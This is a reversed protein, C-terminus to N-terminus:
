NMYWTFIMTASNTYIMKASATGGNGDSQNSIMWYGVGLEGAWSFNSSFFYEGGWALKFNMTAPNNSSSTGNPLSPSGTGYGFQLGVYPSVGGVATMHDEVGVGIGLSNGSGVNSNAPTYTGYGVEGRLALNENLMYKAGITSFGPGSVGNSSAIGLSSQIGWAGSKAMDGAFALSSVFVVALLIFGLKKM